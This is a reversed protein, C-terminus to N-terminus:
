VGLFVGIEEIGKRVFIFEFGSRDGESRDVNFEVTGEGSLSPFM